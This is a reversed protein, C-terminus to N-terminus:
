KVDWDPFCGGEEGVAMTTAVFPRRFPEPLHADHPNEIIQSGVLCAGSVANEEAANLQKLQAFPHKM